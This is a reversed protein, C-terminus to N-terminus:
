FLDEDIPAFCKSKAGSLQLVAQFFLSTCGKGYEQLCVPICSFIYLLQALFFTFLINELAQAGNSISESNPAYMKGQFLCSVNGDM